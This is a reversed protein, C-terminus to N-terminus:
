KKVFNRLKFFELTNIEFIVIIKQFDLESVGLNLMKPGFKLCKWKKVFNRLKVFKLIGSGFIAVTKQFELEFVRLDLM